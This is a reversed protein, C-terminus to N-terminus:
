YVGFDTKANHIWPQKMIVNTKCNIGRISFIYFNRIFDSHAFFKEMEISDKSKPNRELFQNPVPFIMAHGIRNFEMDICLRRNGSTSKLIM